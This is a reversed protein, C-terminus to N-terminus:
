LGFPIAQTGFLINSSHLVPMITKLFEIENLISKEKKYGINWRELMGAFNELM